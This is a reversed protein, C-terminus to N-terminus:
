RIGRFYKQGTSASPDITISQQQNPLTTYPGEPSNASQLTGDTAITVKGDATSTLTLTPPRVLNLAELTVGDLIANPDTLTPDQRGFTTAMIVMKERQTVLEASVLAGSTTLNVGGQVAPPSFDQAVLEGDVYINFGRTICCQEFFMMQLKYTSGPLLGDLEVRVSSGYRISQMVKEITDDAESDGYEPTDWLPINNPATVRIGPANDATFNADGAQGAAGASSVNFAYVFNGELDLGEGPDGGSIAGIVVNAVTTRPKATLPDEGLSYELYDNQGDGDTDAKVPDTHSLNIEQGDNLGDGDTDPNVPDTHTTNVEQGDSLGDNDTDFSSPDSHTTNVEQGDSLGDNDSDSVTPDTGLTYELNNALGDSDADGTGTQALNGFLQNEWADWLSDGDSDAADEELELTSGNVIANHDAMTPDTVGRGDLVVILETGTAVFTHTVVAGTDRPTANNPGTFGGQWQYPAFERVALRGNILVNFGRAWLYEGFLLQLKYRAGVTLNGFTLTVAPKTASAAESWRISSIVSSLVLQEDSEGFNVGQNWNDAVQSSDVLSGEADDATFLADRVQGGPRSNGYSIAYLFSGTLDLGQDDGPGTFRNATTFKPKRAPNTPDTLLHVEDYDGFGDGDTDAKAPDTLYRRVEVSDSLLDGDGDAKNPNSRYTIVEERDTLGDNDTDARTPNTQHVKIEDSDTLGDNDTDALTPNSSGALEEANTLGDSDPDASAIQSLNGFFLNEWADDLGDGDADGPASVLEVTVANLIANHDTYDASAGRGDLRITLTPSGAVHQHAILAEQLRNNQGGQEVGPNFDKVILTGDVFVDFGRNCCAEGFMLQLQYTAGVRLSGLTLVVEPIASGADSWRISSTAKELNDDAESEGYDVTYWNLIRNGASLSAGSVEANILGQFLADRVQFSEGPNGGIALAYLFNGDLDLGEGEDGGAIIGISTLAPDTIEPTAGQVSGVALATSVACATLLRVPHAKMSYKM